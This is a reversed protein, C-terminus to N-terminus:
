FGPRRTRIEWTSNRYPCGWLTDGTEKMGEYCSEGMDVLLVMMVLLVSEEEEGQNEWCSGAERKRGSSFDEAWPRSM